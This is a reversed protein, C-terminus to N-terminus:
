NQRQFCWKFLYCLASKVMLRYKWFAGSFILDKFFIDKWLKIAAYYTAPNLANFILSRFRIWERVLSTLVPAVCPWTTRRALSSSTFADTRWLDYLNSAANWKRIHNTKLNDKFAKDHSLFKRTWHILLIALLSLLPPIM